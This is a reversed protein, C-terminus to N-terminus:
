AIVPDRKMAILNNVAKWVTEDPDMNDGRHEWLHTLLVLVAAQVDTPVNEATWGTTVARWWATSNCRGLVLESAQEAKQQIDLDRDHSDMPERLHAKANVLSVLAM